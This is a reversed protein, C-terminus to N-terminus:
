EPSHDDDTNNKGDAQEQEQDNTIPQMTSNETAQENETLHVHEHPNDSNNMPHHDVSENNANTVDLDVHETDM